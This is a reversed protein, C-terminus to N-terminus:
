NDGNLEEFCNHCEKLEIKPQPTQLPTPKDKWDTLYDVISHHGFNKALDIATNGNQNEIKIDIFNVLYVVAGLNGRMAAYHLANYGYSDAISMNPETQHYFSLYDLHGNKAAEHLSMDSRPRTPNEKLDKLYNAVSEKAFDFATHGNKSKFDIDIFDALFTVAGHHGQRTAYHLATLGEKCVVSVDTAVKKFFKLIDLHGKDAALHLPTQGIKSKM